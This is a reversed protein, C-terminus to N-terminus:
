REDTDDEPTTDSQPTADGEQQLWHQAKDTDSLALGPLEFIKALQAREEPTAEIVQYDLTVWSALDVAGGDEMVIVPQGYSSAPHDTTITAEVAHREGDGLLDVYSLKM